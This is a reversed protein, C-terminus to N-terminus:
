SQNEKNTEPTAFAGVNKHPGQTYERAKGRIWAAQFKSHVQDALDNLAEAKAEAKVKEIARNFIEPDQHVQGGWEFNSRLDALTWDRGYAAEHKENAGM